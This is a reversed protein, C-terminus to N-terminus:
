PWLENALRTWADGLTEFEGQVEERPTEWVRVHPEVARLLTANSRAALDKPDGANLVVAVGRHPLSDLAALCARCQHVAGLRNACVVLVKGPRAAILDRLDETWTLPSLLGGAGEVLTIGDALRHADLAAIWGPFDLAVADQDAALPPALPARLRQLAARPEPQGSAQALRVGDEREGPQAGETGSEAPKIARLTRGQVHWRTLLAVSVFTKGVETDTGTVYLIDGAELRM